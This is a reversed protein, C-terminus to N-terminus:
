FLKVCLKYVSLDQMGSLMPIHLSNAFNSDDKPGAEILLVKNTSDASLRNALVCGASGGGVLFTLYIYNLTIIFIFIIFIKM